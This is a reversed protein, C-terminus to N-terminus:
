SVVRGVADVLFPAPAYEPLTARINEWARALVVGRHRIGYLVAVAATRSRGEACHVFM